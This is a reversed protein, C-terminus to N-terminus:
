PKRWSTLISFNILAKSRRRIQQVVQVRPRLGLIVTTMLIFITLRGKWDLGNLQGWITTSLFISTNRTSISADALMVKWKSRCIPSSRCFFGNRNNPISWLLRSRMADDCRCVMEAQSWTLGAGSKLQSSPDVSSSNSSLLPSSSLPVVLHQFVHHHHDGSAWGVASDRRQKRIKTPGNQDGGQIEVIVLM